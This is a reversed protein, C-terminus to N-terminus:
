GEEKGPAKGTLQQKEWARLCDWGCFRIKRGRRKKVYVWSGGSHSFSRGCVPCVAQLPTVAAM